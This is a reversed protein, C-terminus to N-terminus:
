RIMVVNHKEGYAKAPMICYGNDDSSCHIDKDGPLNTSKTRPLEIKKKKQYIIM